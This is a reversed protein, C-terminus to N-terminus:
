GHSAPWLPSPYKGESAFRAFAEKVLIADEQYTVGYWQDNSHLLKVSVQGSRILDDIIIPIYYEAKPNDQHERVFQYFGKEIAEFVTQHFGWFNMSVIADQPLTNAGDQGYVVQGDVLSIKLIEEISALNGSADTTCVGRNVHGKESLTNLLSYGVMAFTEPSVEERLFEGMKEFCEQGYYDDANIVAFPERVVEKAVLVAQSTGWPKERVPLNDIGEIQPNVHQHVYAVDIRDSFKEGIKARFDAEFHDRIIFVVKTFGARVADFISYELITEGSPGLADLQKLGGYRSGMGAALVVLSIEKAM